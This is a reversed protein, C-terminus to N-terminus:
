KFYVSKCYWSFSLYKIFLILIFLTAYIGKKISLANDSVGLNSIIIDGLLISIIYCVTVACIFMWTPLFVPKTQGVYEFKLRQVINDNLSFSPRLKFLHM